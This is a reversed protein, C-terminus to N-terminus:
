RALLDRHALWHAAVALLAAVCLADLALEAVGLLGIHGTWGFGFTAELPFLPLAVARLVVGLAGDARVSSLAAVLWVFFSILALRTGVPPCLAATVAAVLVCGAVVGVSGAFVGGPTPDSMHGSALVLALYLLLLLLRLASSALVLGRLYPARSELRSLPVFARAGLGRRVLVITGLITQAGLGEGMIGFWYSASGTFEILAAFQALVLMVEGWLWGSRAYATLTYRAV